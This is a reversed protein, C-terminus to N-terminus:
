NDWDDVSGFYEALAREINGESFQRGILFRGAKAREGPLYKKKALLARMAELEIDDPIGEIALDVIGESIGERLLRERLKERGYKGFIGLQEATLSALREDCLLGQWKLWVVVEEAVDPM